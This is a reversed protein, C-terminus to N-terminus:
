RTVTARALCLKSKFNWFLMNLLITVIHMDLHVIIIKYIM